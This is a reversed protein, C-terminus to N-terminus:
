WAGHFKVELDCIEALRRIERKKQRKSAHTDLFYGGSLEKYTRMEMEGDPYTPQTNIVAKKQGPVYPLPEIKSILDYETVLNDVAAAMIDSQRRESFTQVPESDKVFSIQYDEEESPSINRADGEDPLADGGNSEDVVITRQQGELTTILESIFETAQGELDVPVDQNLEKELLENVQDAIKDTNEELHHIADATAAIQNAIEDAKGSRISEKTLMELRSPEDALHDLSFRDIPGWDTDGITSLVVFNRGNTLVGWDVERANHIYSGLQNVYRERLDERAAKAEVFVLPSGGVMLAYDVNYNQTAIQITYEPEVETSYINWGLLDALPQVLRIKTTEEDM